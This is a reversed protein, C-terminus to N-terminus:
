SNNKLSCIDGPSDTSPSDFNAGLDLGKGTLGVRREGTGEGIWAKLGLGVWFLFM